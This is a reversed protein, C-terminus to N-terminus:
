AGNLCEKCNVQERLTSVAVRISTAEPDCVIHQEVIGSRDFGNPGLRIDPSKIPGGVVIWHITEIDRRLLKCGHRGCNDEPCQPDSSRFLGCKTCEYLNLM